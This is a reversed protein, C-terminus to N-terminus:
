LKYICCIKKLPTFDKVKKMGKLQLVTLIWEKTAQRPVTTENLEVKVKRLVHVLAEKLELYALRMGICIRPGQGFPMFALPNREAVKEESFRDPDFTEPDPGWSAPDRHIERVPIHIVAGAPITVSGFTWSERARRTVFTLPPFLRLTENLVQETYHLKALEEHTPHEHQVVDMIERFVKEQIDPNQALEFLCFQLTSTTTEYAALITMLSQAIVEDAAIAKKSAGTAKTSTTKEETSMRANSVDTAVKLSVLSQLFDNHLGSSGQREAVERDAITEKLISNFYDVSTKPCPDVLYVGFINVIAARFEPFKLLFRDLTFDFMSFTRFINKVSLTFQDDEEEGISDAQVGFATRAIVATTYQGTVHLLKVHSGSRACEAFADGLHCAAERVITSVSKLKGTSFSPSMLRRIRKWDNDKLFFLGDRIPSKTWLEEKRNVFNNFDKVMIHRLLDLDRSVLEPGNNSFGFTPGHEQMLHHFQLTLPKLINVDVHTVGLSEWRVRSRRTTMIFYLVVAVTVLLTVVSTNSVFSVTADTDKTDM